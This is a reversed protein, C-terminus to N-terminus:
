HCTIDGPPCPFTRQCTGGLCSQGIACSHGCSGCNNSDSIFTASSVCQGMCSTYSPACGCFGGTCSESPISCRNGCRGCNQDDNVYTISDVCRGQCWDKGVSCSAPGSTPGSSPQTTPNQPATKNTRIKGTCAGKSCKQGSACANGCTGCNFKDQSLDLCRGSCNTQDPKCNIRPKCNGVACTEGQQCTNGCSGCNSLDKSLDACTTGCQSEPAPCASTGPATQAQACLASFAALLFLRSLFWLLVPANADDRSVVACAQM